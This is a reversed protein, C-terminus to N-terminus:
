PHAPAAAADLAITQHLEHCCKIRQLLIPKRWEGRSQCESMSFIPSGAQRPNRLHPNTLRNETQLLPNSPMSPADACAGGFSMPLSELEVRGFWADTSERKGADYSVKDKAAVSVEGIEMMEAPLYM